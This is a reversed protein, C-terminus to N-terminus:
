YGGLYDNYAQDAAEQAYERVENRLDRMAMHFEGQTIEGNNLSEVLEDEAREYWNPGM